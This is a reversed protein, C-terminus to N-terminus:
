YDDRAPRERTCARTGLSATCSVNRTVVRTRPLRHGDWCRRIRPISGVAYSGSYVKLGKGERRTGRVRYDNKWAYIMYLREVVQSRMPRPAVLLAYAFHISSIQPHVHDLTHWNIPSYVVFRPDKGLIVRRTCTYRNLTRDQQM